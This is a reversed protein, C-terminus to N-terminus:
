EDIEEAEARDVGSDEMKLTVLSAEMSKSKKSSSGASSKKKGSKKGKGAGDVTLPAERVWRSIAEARETSIPYDKGDDQAWRKHNGRGNSVTSSSKVSANSTVGSKRTANHHTENSSQPSCKQSASEALDEKMTAVPEEESQPPTPPPLGKAAAEAAEDDEIARQERARVARQFSEEDVVRDDALAELIAEHKRRERRNREVEEKSKRSADTSVIPTDPERGLNWGRDGLGQTGHGPLPAPRCLAEWSQTLGIWNGARRLVEIWDARAPSRAALFIPYGDCIRALRAANHAHRKLETPSTQLLAHCLLLSHLADTLLPHYTVSENSDALAAAAAESSKLQASTPGSRVALATNHDPYPPISAPVKESFLQSAPYIKPPPPWLDTPIEPSIQTNSKTPILASTSHSLPTSDDTLVEFDLTMKSTTVKTSNVTKTRREPEPQTASNIRRIFEEAIEPAIGPTYDFHKLFELYDKLAKRANSKVMRRYELHRKHAIREAASKPVEELSSATGDSPASVAHGNEMAEKRAEQEDWYADLADHVHQCAIALHVNARHFLMQVELSSPQDEEPIQVENRWDRIGRQKAAESALVLQDKGARHQSLLWRAMALGETLDRAAGAYDEKFIKTLARTRYAPGDNPRESLLADLPELPTYEAMMRSPIKEHFFHVYRADYDLHNRQLVHMALDELTSASQMTAVSAAIEDLHYAQSLKQTALERMRHKRERSLKAGGGTGGFGLGLAAAGAGNLMGNSANMSANLSASTVGSAARVAINTAEDVAKRIKVLDYFVAPDIPHPRPALYNSHALSELVEPPLQLWPGHFSSIYKWHKNRCIILASTSPEGNKQKSGFWPNPASTTSPVPSPTLSPQAPITPTTQAPDVATTTSAQSKKKRAM